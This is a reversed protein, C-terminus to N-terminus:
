FRLLVFAIVHSCHGFCGFCQSNETHEIYPNYHAMIDNHPDGHVLWDLPIDCPPQASSM